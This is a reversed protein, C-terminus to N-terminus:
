QLVVRGKTIMRIGNLQISKAYFGAAVYVTDGPAATALVAAISKKPGTTTAPVFAEAAGDYNDSGSAGNVYWTTPAILSKVTIGATQASRASPSAATGGFISSPASKAPEVVVEARPQILASSFIRLLGNTTSLAIISASPAQSLEIRNTFIAEDMVQLIQPEAVTLLDDDYFSTVLSADPDGVGVVTLWLNSPTQTRDLHILLRNTTIDSQEEGLTPQWGYWSQPQLSYASSQLSSIADCNNTIWLGGDMGAAFVWSPRPYTNSDGETYQPDGWPITAIEAGRARMPAVCIISLLAFLFAATRAHCCQIRNM